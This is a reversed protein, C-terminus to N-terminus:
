VLLKVRLYNRRIHDHPFRMQENSNDKANKSIFARKM